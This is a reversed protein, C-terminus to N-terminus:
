TYLHSVHCGVVARPLSATVAARVGDYVAPLSSWTGATELTEALVGADLMADRMRPGAFRGHEGARGARAGLGVAGAARLTRRVGRRRHRVDDANGEYGTIVLCGGGARRLRLYARLAHRSVGGSGTLQMSLRTEDTDSLRAIDPRPGAQALERLVDLGEGWTPLIWGEYKRVAPIRRVRVTGETVVGLTGESGLVLRRLDPGAASGAVPPLVLEGVPTALRLGAVLDDFRGVGTSAQGASRTVAYGGLTAREYSQPVHGLTLGHAALAQEAEPTRVGPQFSALLSTRDVSLLQDLRSLDLAVVAAHGGRERDLGGVVSTGGGWPVVAISEESCVRLAAAVADADAPVLVADPAASADGERRRVIDAYSQGGAHAARDLDSTRVGDAGLVDALRRRAGDPLLSPPVVATEIAAAPGPSLDGLEDRLRAKTARPLAPAAGAWTTWSTRM